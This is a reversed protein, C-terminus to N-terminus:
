PLALQALVARLHAIGAGKRASTAIVEPHLATYERAKTAIATVFKDRDTPKIKDGKTLVIQYNVAARDLMTMVDLDAPKLGHRSDVLLCVRRLVARGKLYTNVLRTWERVRSKSVRAYGFGPLDAIMLRSNLDFFNIEQTRGPTNSTRALAKHGTLANILSSKGVNSRGAFAIEPLDTAPIQQPKVAGMLFTCPKAFLLRGQELQAEDPPEIDSVMLDQDSITM